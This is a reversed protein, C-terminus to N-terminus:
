NLKSPNFHVSNYFRDQKSKNSPHLHDFTIDVREQNEILIQDVMAVQALGRDCSLAEIGLYNNMGYRDQWTTAIKESAVYLGWQNRFTKAIKEKVYQAMIENISSIRAEGEPGIAKMSKVYDDRWEKRLQRFIVHSLEECLVEEFFAKDWILERVDFNASNIGGSYAKPVRVLYKEPILLIGHSSFHYMTPPSQSLGGYGFQVNTERELDNIRPLYRDRSLIEIIPKDQIKCGFVNEIEPILVDLAEKLTKRNLLLPERSNQWQRSKAIFIEYADKSSPLQANWDIKLDPHSLRVLKKDNEWVEPFTKVRVNIKPM